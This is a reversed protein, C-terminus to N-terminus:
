TWYNQFYGKKKKKKKVIGGLKEDNCEVFGRKSWNKFKWTLKTTEPVCNLGM